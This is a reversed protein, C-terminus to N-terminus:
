QYIGLNDLHVFHDNFHFFLQFTVHLLQGIIGILQFLCHFTFIFLISQDFVEEKHFSKVFGLQSATDNAFM